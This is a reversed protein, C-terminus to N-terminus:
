IYLDLNQHTRTLQHPLLLYVSLGDGVDDDDDVVIGDNLIVVDFILSTIKRMKMAPVVYHFNVRPAFFSTKNILTAKRRKTM